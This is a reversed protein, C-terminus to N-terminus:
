NLKKVEWTKDKTLVAVLNESIMKAQLKPVEYRRKTLLINDRRALFELIKGNKDMLVEHFKYKYVKLKIENQGQYVKEYIIGITYGNEFPRLNLFEPKIITEGKKDIFGYVPIGDEIEKVILCRGDNFEPKEIAKIGLDAAAANPSWYLDNRFDIVLEGDANIFGWQNGKRVAALGDQFPGLEDIGEPTQALAIMPVIACLLLIIQKAKM